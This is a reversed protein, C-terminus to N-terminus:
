VLQCPEALWMRDRCYRDAIEATGSVFDAGAALASDAEPHSGIWATLMVRRLMVFTPIM